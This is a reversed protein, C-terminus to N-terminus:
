RAFIESIAGSRCRNEVQGPACLAGLIEVHVSDSDARRGHVRPAPARQAEAGEKQGVDRDRRDRQDADGKQVLERVAGSGQGDADPHM